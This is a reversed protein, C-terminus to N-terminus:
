RMHRISDALRSAVFTKMGEQRDGSPMEKTRATTVLILKMCAFTRETKQSFRCTISISWRSSGPCNTTAPKSVTSFTAAAMRSMTTRPAGAIPAAPAYPM